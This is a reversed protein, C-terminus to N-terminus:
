VIRSCSPDPKCLLRARITEPDEGKRRLPEIKFKAGQFEGVELETTGRPQDTRRSASITIPRGCALTANRAIVPRAFRCLSAM